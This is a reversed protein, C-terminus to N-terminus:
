FVRLTWPLKQRPPRRLTNQVGEVRSLEWSAHRPLCPLSSIVWRWFSVGRCWVMDDVNSFYRFFGPTPSVLMHVFQLVVNRGSRKQLSLARCFAMDQINLPFWMSRGLGCSRRQITEHNSSWLLNFYSPSHVKQDSSWFITSRIPGMKTAASALANKKPWIVNNNPVAVM